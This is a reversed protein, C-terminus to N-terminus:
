AYDGREARIMVVFENPSLRRGLEQEKRRKAEYSYDQEHSGSDPSHPYCFPEDDYPVETTCGPVECEHPQQELSMDFPMDNM